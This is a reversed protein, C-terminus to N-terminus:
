RFNTVFNQIQLTLFVFYDDSDTFYRRRMVRAIAITIEITAYRAVFSVFWPSVVKGGDVRRWARGNDGKACLRM